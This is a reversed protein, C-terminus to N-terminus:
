RFGRHFCCRLKKRHNFDVEGGHTCEFSIQFSKSELVCFRRELNEQCSEDQIRVIIYLHFLEKADVGAKIPSINWCAIDKQLDATTVLETM